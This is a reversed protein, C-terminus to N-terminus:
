VESLLYNNIAARCNGSCTKAEETWEECYEPACVDVTLDGESVRFLFASLEDEDMRQIQELKTM